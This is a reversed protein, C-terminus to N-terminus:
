SALRRVFEDVIASASAGTGGGVTKIQAVAQTVQAVQAALANMQNELVRTATAAEFACAETASIDRMAIQGGAPPAAGVAVSAWRGNPLAYVDVRYPGREVRALQAAQDPTLDEEEGAPLAAGGALARITDLQAYMPDGCCSTDANRDRHAVITPNSAVAGVAIGRQIVRAIAELAAMSPAAVNSDGLWCVAYGKSNFGFTHAGTRWWGRAEYDNGIDDVCWSYGIDGWGNTVAHFRQGNRMRAMASDVTREPQINSNFHHIYIETVAFSIANGGRAFASGWDERTYSTM